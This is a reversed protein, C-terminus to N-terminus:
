RKAEELEVLYDALRDRLLVMGARSECALALAVVAATREDSSMSHWMAAFLERTASM